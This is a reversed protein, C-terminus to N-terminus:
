ARVRPLIEDRTLVGDRNVDLHALSSNANAIEMPQLIGDNNADLQHFLNFIATTRASVPRATGTDTRSTSHLRARAALEAVTLVGDEDLDLAKLTIAAYTMESTSIVGDRDLDLVSLLSTAPAVPARRLNNDSNAVSATAFTSTGLVVAVLLSIRRTNMLIIRPKAGGVVPFHNCQFSSSQVYPFVGRNYAL